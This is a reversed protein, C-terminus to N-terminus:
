KGGSGGRWVPLGVSIGVGWISRSCCRLLWTFVGGTLWRRSDSDSLRLLYRERELLAIQGTSLIVPTLTAACIHGRAHAASARAFLHQQLCTPQVASAERM